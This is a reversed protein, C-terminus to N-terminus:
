LPRRYLLPQLRLRLAEVSGARLEDELERERRVELVHVGVLGADRLVLLLQLVHQADVVLDQGLV